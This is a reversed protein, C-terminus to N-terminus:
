SRARDALRGAQDPNGGCRPMGVYVDILVERVGGDVAAEITEDSDVAVTVRSGAETLAGLRGCDVVENALLLDTDLGAAAMGELERPTAACFNAWGAAALARAVETSKFAKIHPRLSAGPRERQMTALNRDFAARDLVLAPTQLDGVTSPDANLQNASAMMKFVNVSRQVLM